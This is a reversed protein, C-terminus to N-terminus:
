WNAPLNTYSCMWWKSGIAAGEPGMLVSLCKVIVFGSPRLETKDKSYEHMEKVIWWRSM